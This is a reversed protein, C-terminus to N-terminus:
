RRGCRRRCGSRDASGSRRTRVLSGCCRCRLVARGPGAAGLGGLRGPRLSGTFCGPGPRARGAPGARGLGCGARLKGGMAAGHHLGGILEERTEAVHDIVPNGSHEVLHEVVPVLPERTPPQALARRARAPGGAQRSHRAAACRALHGCPRARSPRSRGPPWGSWWIPSIMVTMSTMRREASVGAASARWPRSAASAAPAKAAGRMRAATAVSSARRGTSGGPGDWTPTSTKEWYM